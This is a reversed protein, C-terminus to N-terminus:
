RFNGDNHLLNGAIVKWCFKSLLVRSYILPVNSTNTQINWQLLLSERPENIIMSRELTLFIIRSPFSNIFLDVKTDTYSVIDIREKKRKENNWISHLHPFLALSRNTTTIEQNCRSADQINLYINNVSVEQQALVSLDITQGIHLVYLICLSSRLLFVPCLLDSILASITTALQM